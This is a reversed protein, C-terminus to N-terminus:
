RREDLFRTFQEERSARPNVSKLSDIHVPVYPFSEFQFVSDVMNNEHSRFNIEVGLSAWDISFLIRQKELIREVINM